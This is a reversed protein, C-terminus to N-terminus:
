TAQVQVRTCPEEAHAFLTKMMLNLHMFAHLTPPHWNPTHFFTAVQLDLCGWFRM